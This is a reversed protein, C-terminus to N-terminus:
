KSASQMQSAQVDVVMETGLPPNLVRGGVRRGLDGKASAMVPLSKCGAFELEGIDLCSCSQSRKPM